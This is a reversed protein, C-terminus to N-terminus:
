WIIATGINCEQMLEKVKMERGKGGRKWEGRLGVMAGRDRM